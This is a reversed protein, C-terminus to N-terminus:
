QVNLTCVASKVLNRKTVSLLCLRGAMGFSYPILHFGNDSDLNAVARSELRSEKFISQSAFSLKCLVLFPKDLMVAM